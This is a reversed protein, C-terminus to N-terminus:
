SSAGPGRRAHHRPSALQTAIREIQVRDALRDLRPGLPQAVPAELGLALPLQLEGAARAPSDLDERALQAVCQSLYQSPPKAGKGLGGGPFNRRCLRREFLVMGGRSAAMEQPARGRLAGV